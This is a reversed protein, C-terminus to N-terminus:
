ALSCAELLPTHVLRNHNHHLTGQKKAIVFLSFHMKEAWEYCPVEDVGFLVEAEPNLRQLYQIMYVINALVPACNPIFIDVGSYQEDLSKIKDKYQNYFDGTTRCVYVVMCVVHHYPNPGALEPTIIDGAELFCRVAAAANDDM